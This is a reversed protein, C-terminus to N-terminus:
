AAMQRSLSVAAGDLQGVVKNVALGAGVGFFLVGGEAFHFVRSSMFEVRGVM